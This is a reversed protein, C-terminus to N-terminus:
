VLVAVAVATLASAGVALLSSPADSKVSSPATVKPTATANATCAGKYALAVKKRGTCMSAVYLECENPYTVGDTGCMPNTANNLPCGIMPCIVVGSGSGSTSQADLGHLVLATIAVFAFQISKTGFM